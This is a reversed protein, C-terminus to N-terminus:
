PCPFKRKLMEAVARNLEASDRITFETDPAAKRLADDYKDMAKNREVTTRQV